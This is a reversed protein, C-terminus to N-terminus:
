RDGGRDRTLERLMKQFTEVASPVGDFYDEYFGPQACEPPDAYYSGDKEEARVWDQPVDADVLAFLERPYLIPEGRDNLVRFSKESFGVVLYESGPTIHPRPLRRLSGADRQSKARVRM